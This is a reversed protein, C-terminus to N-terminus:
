MTLKKTLDNNYVIYPTLIYIYLMYLKGELITKIWRTFHSVRTFRSALDNCALGFTSVGYLVWPKSDDSNKKTFEADNAM